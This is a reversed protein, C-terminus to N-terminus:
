RRLLYTPLLFMVAFLTVFLFACIGYIFIQGAFNNPAGIIQILGDIFGM